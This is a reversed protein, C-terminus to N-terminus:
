MFVKIPLATSVADSRLIRKSTQSRTGHELGTGGERYWAVFRATRTRKIHWTGMELRQLTLKAIDQKDDRDTQRDLSLHPPTPHPPPNGHERRAGIARHWAVFGLIRREWLLLKEWRSLQYHCTKKLCHRSDSTLGALACRITVYGSKINRQGHM